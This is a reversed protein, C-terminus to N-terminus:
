LPRSRRDGRVPGNSVPGRCADLATLFDQAWTVATTRDVVASLRRHRERREEPRMRLARDLDHAMGEIHWPNTLVADVLEAAAGAFRSLLLVGPNEPDQAAVYEKAVLNMGDRLPTVYGVAAARYLHALHNRRYSRYLYRVPVWRGDGFDGNVRGVANEVLKRQEAYDSVDERSPVSVQVLSVRGRWEPYRELLRGFAHLREPIGKTYDLRDVGLVLQGPAIASLLATVEEAVAPDPPEHFSEPIIGIPFPQVAIRRGRHVVAGPELRVAPFPLLCQRFNSAYSSTHFGLLDFDLLADLLEEAWPVLNFVDAGPFPIHLFLGIPARHGRRRLARAVLLLHYDHIWIPTDTGVLDIAAAAFVDNVKRYAEWEESAFKVRDPFTHFLPWLVRNCFGNYYRDHWQEPFDIWAMAPEAADDLKVATPEEDPVLRGSWGLWLGRRRALAPELAAVLGGVNRRREDRPKTPSRLEPLRNSLVLLDYPGRRQADPLPKTAIPVPLCPPEPASSRTGARVEGMWTLFAGLEPPGGLTWRAHTAREPRPAGVRIGEDTLGLAAFMDEDTWDDGFALLRARGGARERLWRVATSKRLWPPRVEIVEVGDLREFGPHAELWPGILAAAAVILGARDAEAVSRQHLTVSWTKHEVLAGPVRAALRDLEVGLPELVSCADIEAQAHWGSETRRWGGHEAVLRVAPAARFMEGLEDRSRGSVVAVLVDPRSALAELLALVEPGPRAEAPTPAFPILTGDLDTLIGLPSHRAITLWHELM